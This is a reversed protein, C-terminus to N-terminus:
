KLRRSAKESGSTKPSSHIGSGSGGGRQGRRQRADGHVVGVDDIAGGAERRAVGQMGGPAKAGLDDFRGLRAVIREQRLGHGAQRRRIPQPDRDMGAAFLAPVSAGPVNVSYVIFAISPPILIDTAAAAGVVSASFAPPYGAKAMAAIMVGGVAAANAPGSGSIGGLVMAVLIAVAPLTGPARGVCAEAFTVM